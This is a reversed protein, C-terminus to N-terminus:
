PANIAIHHEFLKDFYSHKFLPRVLALIPRAFAIISIEPLPIAAIEGGFSFANSPIVVESSFDTVYTENEESDHGDESTQVSVNLVLPAKFLNKSLVATLMFISVFLTLAKIIHRSEKM